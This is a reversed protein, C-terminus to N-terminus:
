GRTPRGGLSLGQPAPSELTRKQGPLRRTLPVASPVIPGWPHLQAVLGRLPAIPLASASSRWRWAVSQGSARVPPIQRARDSPPLGGGAGGAGPRAPGRAPAGGRPLLPPAPGSHGYADVAAWVGSLARAAAGWAVTRRGTWRHCPRSRRKGWRTGPRRGRRGRPRRLCGMPAGWTCGRRRCRSCGASCSTRSASRGCNARAAGRRM